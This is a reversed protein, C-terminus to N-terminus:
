LRANPLTSGKQKLNSLWANWAFEAVAADQAGVGTLDCVVLEDDSRRGRAKGIMVDGLEVVLREGSQSDTKALEPCHQLEGLRACQPVNDCVIVAARRLVDTGLEAKGPTDSGVAIVTAGPSLWSAQVIPANAATATVIVDAGRVCDEASVAATIKRGIYHKRIDDVYANLRGHNPSWASLEIWQRVETMAHLQFRAQIGSGLIAMKKIERHPGVLELALAGAAGTRLDTLYGNDALLSLPFGTQADFVIMLGSGSPVGRAINSTFGSAAKMAYVARDKLHGGKVCTEGEPLIIQMSPPQTVEGRALARFAVRASELAAPPKVAGRLFTEDVVVMTPQETAVTNGPALAM